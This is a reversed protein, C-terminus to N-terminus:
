FAEEDMEPVAQAAAVAPRGSQAQELTTSHLRGHEDEARAALASEEPKPKRLAFDHVRKDNGGQGPETRVYRRRIVDGVCLAGHGANKAEIYSWRNHGKIYNRALTGEVAPGDGVKCTTGPMVICTLMEQTRLKGNNGVLQPGKSGDRRYEYLPVEQRDVVMGVFTDGIAEFKAGPISQRETELQTAM